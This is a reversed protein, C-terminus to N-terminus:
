AKLATSCALLRKRLERRLREPPRAARRGSKNLIRVSKRLSRIFARCPRCDPMHAEISRCISPDLEGDIYDSLRRLMQRCRIPKAKM